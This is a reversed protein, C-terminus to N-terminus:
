CLHLINRPMDLLVPCNQYGFGVLAKNMGFALLNEFNETVDFREAYTYLM